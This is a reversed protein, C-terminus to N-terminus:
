QLSKVATGSCPKLMQSPGRDPGTIQIFPPDIQRGWGVPWWFIQWIAKWHAQHEVAKYAWFDSRVLAWFKFGGLSSLAMNACNLLSLHIFLSVVSSVITSFTNRLQGSLEGQCGQCEIGVSLLSCFWGTFPVWPAHFWFFPNNPDKLFLWYGSDEWGPRPCNVSLCKCRKSRYSRIWHKCIKQQSIRGERGILM